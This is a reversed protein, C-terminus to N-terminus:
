LFGNLVGGGGEGMEIKKGCKECCFEKEYKHKTMNQFFYLIKRLVPFQCFNDGLFYKDKYESLKGCHIGSHQNRLYTDAM